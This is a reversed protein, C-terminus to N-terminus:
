SFALQPCRAGRAENVHKEQIPGRCAANEAKRHPILMLLEQSKGPCAAKGRSIKSGKGSFAQAETLCLKVLGFHGRTVYGPRLLRM